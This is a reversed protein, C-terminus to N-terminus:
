QNCSTSLLQRHINAVPTTGDTSKKTPKNKMGSLGRQNYLAPRFSSDNFTRVRIPPADNAFTSIKPIASDSLPFEADTDIPSNNLGEDRLTITIPNKKAM